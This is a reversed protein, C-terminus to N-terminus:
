KKVITLVCMVMFRQAKHATSGTTTQCCVPTLVVGRTCEYSFPIGQQKYRLDKSSRNFRNDGLENEMASSTSAIICVGLSGECWLGM